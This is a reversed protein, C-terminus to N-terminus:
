PSFTIRLYQTVSVSPECCAVHQGAQCYCWAKRRAGKAVYQFGRDATWPNRKWSQLNHIYVARPPGKNLTLCQMRTYIQNSVAENQISWTNEGSLRDLINDYQSMAYLFPRNVTAHSRYRLHSFLTRLSQEPNLGFPIPHHGSSDEGLMHLYVGGNM